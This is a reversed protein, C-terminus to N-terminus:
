TPTTRMGRNATSVTKDPRTSGTNHIVVPVTAQLWEVEGGLNVTAVIPDSEVVLVASVNPASADTCGPAVAAFLLIRLWRNM